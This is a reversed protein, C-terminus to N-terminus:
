GYRADYDAFHRLVAFAIPIENREFFGESEPWQVAPNHGRIFAGLLRLNEKSSMGSGPVANYNIKTTPLLRVPDDAGLVVDVFLVKEYPPDPPMRRAVLRVIDSWM